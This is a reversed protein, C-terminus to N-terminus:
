RKANFTDLFEFLASNGVSTPRIEKSFEGTDTFFWGKMSPPGGPYMFEGEVVTRDFEVPRQSVADVTGLSIEPVLEIPLEGIREL